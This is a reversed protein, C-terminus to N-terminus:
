RLNNSLLLALQESEKYDAIFGFCGSHIDLTLSPKGGQLEDLPTQGKVAQGQKYSMRRQRTAGKQHIGGYAHPLERSANTRPPWSFPTM